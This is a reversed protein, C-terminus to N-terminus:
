LVGLTSIIMFILIRFGVLLPELHFAVSDLDRLHLVRRNSYHVVDVVSLWWAWRLLRLCPVLLDPGLKSPSMSVILLGQHM